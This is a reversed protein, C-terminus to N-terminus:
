RTRRNLDSARIRHGKAAIVAAVQYFLFNSCVRHVRCRRSECGSDGTPRVVSGGDFAMRGAQIVSM